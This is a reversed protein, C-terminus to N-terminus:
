EGGKPDNRADQAWVDMAVMDFDSGFMKEADRRLEWVNPYESANAAMWAKIEPARPSEFAARLLAIQERVEALSARGFGPMNLLQSDSASDVQGVTVYGHEKLRTSPRVSLMLEDAHVSQWTRVWDKGHPEGAEAAPPKAEALEVGARSCLGMSLGLVYAMLQQTEKAQSGHSRILARASQAHLIFRSWDELLQTDDPTM